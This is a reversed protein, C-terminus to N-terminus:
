HGPNCVAEYLIRGYVAALRLSGRSRPNVSLAESPAQHCTSSSVAQYFNICPDIATFHSTEWPNIALINVEMYFVVFRALGEALWRHPLTGDVNDIVSRPPLRYPLKCM